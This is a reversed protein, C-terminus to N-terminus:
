LKIIPISNQIKQFRKITNEHCTMLIIQKDKSLDMITKATNQARKDDFNVMVDDMIIPLIESKRSYYEIYGLRIALYLQERTGTSLQEPTKENGNKDVVRFPNEKDLSTKIHTYSGNTIKGFIKNIINLLEPQHEKEFRNVAEQLLRRAMVLSIYRDMSTDFESRLFEVENALEAAKASGDFKKFNEELAVYEKFHQEWQNYKEIEEAELQKKELEISAFDIDELENLLDDYNLEEKFRVKNLYDTNKEIQIKLNKSQEFRSLLSLFEEDNEVNTKNFLNKIEKQHQKHEKEKKNKEILRDDIKEQLKIRNQEKKQEESVMSYLEEVTKEPNKEDFRKWNLRQTIDKIRKKFDNVANNMRKLRIHNEEDEKMKQKSEDLLRLVKDSIDTDWESNFGIKNLLSIWKNKWENVDKELEQKKNIKKQIDSQIEELEKNYHKIRTKSDRSEQIEKNLKEMITNINKNTINPFHTKADKLFDDMKNKLENIRIDMDKKNKLFDALIKYNSVWEKMENPTLPKFGCEKWQEHWKFNLNTLEEKVKSIRKQFDSILKEQKSKRKELDEKIAVMESNTYLQDSFQDSEKVSEEYATSLNSHKDGLWRKINEQSIKKGEEIYKKKILEWGLDRFERKEHLDNRDIPVKSKILSNIDENENILQRETSELEHNLRDLEANKKEFEKEFKNLTNDLPISFDIDQDEKLLPFLKNWLNKLNIESKKGESLLRNYEKEISSIERSKDLIKEKKTIDKVENEEKLKIRISDVKNKQDQIQDKIKDLKKDLEGYLKILNEFDSRDTINPNFAKLFNMDWTNEISKLSDLISNQLMNSRTTIMPIDKHCSEIRKIESFLTELMLKEDILKKNYSIVDRKKEFSDMDTRIDSLEKELRKIEKNSEGYIEKINIPIDTPLSINDLAEKDKKIEIFPEYADLLIDIHNKRKKIEKLKNDLEIKGKEKNKLDRLNNSYNSPAIIHERMEKEKEKIQSMLNNLKPKRGTTKFLESEEDYILSKIEEINTVGGMGSGYLVETIEKNKLSEEGQTLESLSFGFINWYIENNINGFLQYLRDEDLDIGTGIIEGLIPTKRSKERRYYIERGDKMKLNVESAMNESNFQYPNKMIKFGFFTERICHLLTTKGTENPGYLVVMNEDPITFEKNKFIGYNEIKLKKLEM